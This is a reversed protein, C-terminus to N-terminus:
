RIIQCRELCATEAEFLQKLIRIEVGSESTPYPVLMRDLHQQLERCLADDEM